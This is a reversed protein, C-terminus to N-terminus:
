ASAQQPANARAPLIDEVSLGLADALPRVMRPSVDASRNIWRSMTPESVGLTAAIDRQRLGKDRIAQKLDM